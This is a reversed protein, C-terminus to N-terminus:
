FALRGGIFFADVDRFEYRASIWAPGIVRFAALIGGGFDDDGASLDLTDVLGTAELDVAGVSSWRVFGGAELRDIPRWRLGGELDVGFDADRFDDALFGNLLGSDSEIETRILGAQGYAAVGLLLDFNIGAAIRFEEFDLDELDLEEGLGTAIPVEVADLGFDARRYEGFAYVGGLIELQCAARVGGGNDTDFDITSTLSVVGQEEDSQNFLYGAECYRTSPGDAWAMTPGFAAAAALGLIRM